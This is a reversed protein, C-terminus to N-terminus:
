QLWAEDVSEDTVNESAPEESQEEGNETDDGYGKYYSKYSKGYRKYYRYKKYPSETGGVTNMVFGLLKVGSLELHRMCSALERRGSYNERVVVVMGDLVSSAVLADSVINVPPLDIIIFDFSESLREILSAMQPSSLMETPNPPVDGSPLIAWNELDDSEWIADEESNAGALLNSLGPTANIELKKAITPLRLDADIILTRKGAEALVYSLNIATTSKGEGRTASTIGIVRSKKDGPITFMLNTRLLKYAETAAFNLKKHIMTNNNVPQQVKRKGFIM